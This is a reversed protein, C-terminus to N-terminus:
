STTKSENTPVEAYKAKVYRYLIFTALIAFLIAILEIILKTIDEILAYNDTTKEAKTVLDVRVADLSEDGDHVVNSAATATVVRLHATNIIRIIGFVLTLIFVCILVIGSVLMIITNDFWTAYIALAISILILSGLVVMTIAYPNTPQRAIEVIGHIIYRFLISSLLFGYFVTLLIRIGRIQQKKSFVM